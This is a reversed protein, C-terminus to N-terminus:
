ILKLIEKHISEHQIGMLIIWQLHHQEIPLQKIPNGELLSLVFNRVEDRYQKVKNLYESMEVHGVLGNWHYNDEMIDDWSMEDVGVAFIGDFLPNIREDNRIFGGAVLKNIYFCATHGYYFILHHRLKEARYFYAEPTISSFLQEYREWSALFSTKLSEDTLTSLSM